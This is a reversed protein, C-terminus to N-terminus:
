RRGLIKKRSSYNKKPPPNSLQLPFTFMPTLIPPFLHCYILPQNLGIKGRNRVQSSGATWKARREM